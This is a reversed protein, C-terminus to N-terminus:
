GGPTEPSPRGERAELVEPHKTAIHQKLSRRDRLGTLSCHGCKLGQALIEGQWKWAAAGCLGDLPIM